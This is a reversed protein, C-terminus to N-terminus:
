AYRTAATPWGSRPDGARAEGLVPLRGVAHSTPSPRLGTLTPPTTATVLVPSPGKVTYCETSTPRDVVKVVARDPSMMV